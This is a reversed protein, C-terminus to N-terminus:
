CRAGAQEWSARCEQFRGARYKTGTYLVCFSVVRRGAKGGFRDVEYLMDYARQEVIGNCEFRGHDDGDAQQSGVLGLRGLVRVKTGKVEKIVSSRVGVGGDTIHGTVHHEMDMSVSRM